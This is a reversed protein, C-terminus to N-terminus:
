AGEIRSRISDRLTAVDVPGATPVRLVPFGTLPRASRALRWWEDVRDADQHAPHRRRSTFRAFAVELPVECWVEVGRPAGLAALARELFPEDRGSAWFSEVVVPGPLMAAMAWLADSALAGLAQTPLPADVSDALAEKITDKAVLPLELAAALPGALATKGAGPVGNVVILFDAVRAAYSPRAQGSWQEFPRAGAAGFRSRELL